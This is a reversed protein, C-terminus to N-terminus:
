PERGGRRRTSESGWNEMTDRRGGPARGKGQGGIGGREHRQGTDGHGIHTDGKVITLNNPAGEHGKIPGHVKNKTVTDVEVRLWAAM